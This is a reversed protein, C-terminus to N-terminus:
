GCGITPPLRVEQPIFVSESKGKLVYTIGLGRIEWERSANRLLRVRAIVAYWLHGTKVPSLVAGIANGIDHGNRLAALDFSGAIEGTTAGPQFTMLEFSTATDEKVPLRIAMHTIRVPSSATNILVTLGDGVRCTPLAFLKYSYGVDFQGAIQLAKAPPMVTTTANAITVSFGVLLTAVTVVSATIRMVFRLTM